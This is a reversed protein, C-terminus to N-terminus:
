TISVRWGKTSEDINLIEISSLKLASRQAKFRTRIKQTILIMYAGNLDQMLM